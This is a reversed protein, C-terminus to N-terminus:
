ARLFLVPQHLRISSGNIDRPLVAPQINSLMTNFVGIGGVNSIRWLLITCIRIVQQWLLAPYELVTALCVAAGFHSFRYVQLHSPRNLLSPRSFMSSLNKELKIFYWKSTPHRHLISSDVFFYMHLLYFYCCLSIIGGIPLLVEDAAISSMTNCETDYDIEGNNYIMKLRRHSDMRSDCSSLLRSILCLQWGNRTM